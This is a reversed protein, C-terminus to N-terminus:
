PTLTLYRGTHSAPCMAIQEPPGVAVIRGGAAGGEPGLDIIWDASRAVEMHHEIALVTHGRDVLEHFVALLRQVDAVHLGTTPEDFVYLTPGGQGDVESELRNAGILEKALRLRQWEGNALTDAPQGLPLYALGVDALRTLPGAIKAFGDFFATAEGVTM